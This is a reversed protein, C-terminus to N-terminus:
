QQTSKIPRKLQGKRQKKQKKLPGKKPYREMKKEGWEEKWTKKKDIQDERQSSNRKKLHPPFLRGGGLSWLSWHVNGKLLPTRLTSQKTVYGFFVFVELPKILRTTSLPIYSLTKQYKSLKVTTKQATAYPKVHEIKSHPQFYKLTKNISEPPTITNEFPCWM